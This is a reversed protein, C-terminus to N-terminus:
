TRNVDDHQLFQALDHVNYRDNRFRIAQRHFLPERELLLHPKGGRGRMRRTQAIFTSTFLPISWSKNHLNASLENVVVDAQVGEVGLLRVILLNM